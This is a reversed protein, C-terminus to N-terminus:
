VDQAGFNELLQVAVECCATAIAGVWVTTGVIIKCKKINKARGGIELM